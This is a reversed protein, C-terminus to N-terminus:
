NPHLRPLEHGGGLDPPRLPEGDPGARRDDTHGTARQRPIPEPPPPHPFAQPLRYFDPGPASPPVDYEHATQVILDAFRTVFRHYADRHEDLLMVQRLGEDFVAPSLERDVYQISDLHEPIRTPRWRLPFLSPASRGTSRRYESLRDAFAQWERGCSESGFYTPSCVAVFVRCTGLAIRIEESWDAGLRLSAISLFGIPARDSRRTGRVARVEDCLRRFFAAVMADEDDNSEAFSLFFVIGSGAPRGSRAVQRSVPNM